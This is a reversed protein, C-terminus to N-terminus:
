VYGLTSKVATMPIIKSEVHKSTDQDLRWQSSNCYVGAQVKSVARYTTHNTSVKSSDRVCKHHVSLM